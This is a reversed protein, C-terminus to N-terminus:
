SRGRRLLSVRSSLFHQGSAPSGAEKGQCSPRAAPNPPLSRPLPKATVSDQPHNKQATQKGQWDFLTDIGQYQNTFDPQTSACEPLSQTTNVLCATM